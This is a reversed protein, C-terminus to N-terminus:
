LIFPLQGRIAVCSGHHVPVCMYVVSYIVKFFYIKIAQYIFGIEGQRRELNYKTQKQSLRGYELSVTFKVVYNFVKPEQDKQRQTGLASSVPAVSLKHPAQTLGLVECMDVLCEVLQAVNGLLRDKFIHQTQSLFIHEAYLETNTQQILHTLHM